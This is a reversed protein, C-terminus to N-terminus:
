KVLKYPTYYNFRRETRGCIKCKRYQAPLEISKFISVGKVTENWYEWDYFSIACIWRKRFYKRNLTLLVTRVIVFPEETVIYAIVESCFWLTLLQILVNM